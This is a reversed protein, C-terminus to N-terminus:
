VWPHIWKHFSGWSWTHELDESQRAVTMSAKQAFEKTLGVRLEHSTLSTAEYNADKCVVYAVLM